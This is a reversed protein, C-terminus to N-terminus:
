GGSDGGGASDSGGGGNGGGDVLWVITTKGELNFYCWLVCM